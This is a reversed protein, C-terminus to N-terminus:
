LWVHGVNRIEVFVEMHKCVRVSVRKYVSCTQFFFILFTSATHSTSLPLGAVARSLRSIDRVGVGPM